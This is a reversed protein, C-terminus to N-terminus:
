ERIFSALTAGMRDITVRANSRDRGNYIFAFAIVEGNRATTFGALSIVDNTTGTKAHLNGQAPTYRMRNRLLESEGAVPLSAHFNSSWPARHAYDLLQILARPTVRNLMSLGSGDTAYLANPAAGVKAVMFSRLEEMASEASGVDREEAARAANRYILEAYHNVSERNMVSLLRSLPPSPLSTLRMAQPAARGLRVDGEVTVGQRALADRFAGATFMAPDQIVVLYRRAISGTGIWGRVDLEQDGSRRVVINGRRGARSTVANRVTISSSSPELAVEPRGGNRGPRVVVWVVNENVSLASVPAAYGFGLNRSEWGEPIRRSEFASADAILDGRVRKVGSEAVYRALLELPVDPDGRLFRNSFAPDGGGRLILNGQVTGDTIPGDLLVDTSFHHDPGLRDLALAATFLKMTSAPSLLEGANRAYLTDGRTLSVIM